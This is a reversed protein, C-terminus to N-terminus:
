SDKLFGIPETQKDDFVAATLPGGYVAGTDINIRNARVDPKASVLPTHGHVILRGFSDGCSLFPERIWIRDHDSQRDRPVGPKVGAHVFYRRGDDHYFALGGFWRLHEAPLEAARTVRYSELTADGGNEIWWEETAPGETAASVVMADHNGRLCIVEQPTEREMQMLLAVVGHSDPGRDTYDGLFVFRMANSNAHARCRDLLRTLKGLCGHVDGIAYTLTGSDPPM